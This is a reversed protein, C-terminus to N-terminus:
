LFENAYKIGDELDHIATVPDFPPRDPQHGHLAHGFPTNYTTYGGYSHPAGDYHHRHAWTDQQYHFFVGLYLLKDQASGRTLAVQHTFGTSRCLVYTLQFHTDEEYANSRVAPLALAIVALGALAFQRVSM